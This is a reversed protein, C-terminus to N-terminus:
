VAASWCCSSTALAVKAFRCICAPTTGGASAPVGLVIGAEIAPVPECLVAVVADTEADVPSETSWILANLVVKLVSAADSVCNLAETAAFVVSVGECSAATAVVSLPMCLVSTAIALVMAVAFLTGAVAGTAAACGAPEGTATFLGDADGAGPADAGAACAGAVAGDVGATAACVAGLLLLLTGCVACADDMQDKVLAWQGVMTITKSTMAIRAIKNQGSFSVTLVTDVVGDPDPFGLDAGVAVMVM